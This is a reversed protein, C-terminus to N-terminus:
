GRGDLAEDQVVHVQQVGQESSGTCSTTSAISPQCFFVLLRLFAVASSSAV